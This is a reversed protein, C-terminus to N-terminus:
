ICNSFTIIRIPRQKIGTISAPTILGTPDGTTYEATTAGVITEFTPVLDGGEQQKPNQISTDSFVIWV